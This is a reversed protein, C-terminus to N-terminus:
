PESRRTSPRLRLPEGAAAAPLDTATYRCVSRSGRLSMGYYDDTYTILRVTVGDHRLDVDPRHDEVGPLHAIAQVFRASAAFSGTWFL